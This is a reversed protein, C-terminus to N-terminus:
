RYSVVVPGFTIGTGSTFGSGTLYLLNNTVRIVFAQPSGTVNTNDVPYVFPYSDFSALGSTVNNRRWVEIATGSEAIILSGPSTVNGVTVKLIEGNAVIDSYFPGLNSGNVTFASFTVNKIRNPRM